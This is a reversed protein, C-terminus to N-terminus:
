LLGFLPNGLIIVLAFGIAIPAVFPIMPTVTIEEIGESKLRAYVAEVDGAPRRHVLEGGEVDVAPWVYSTEAEKFLMPYETLMRPGFRGELVNKAGIAAMPLLSILVAVILTSVPLSVVASAPYQPAWLLPLGPISPYAPFALSLSILAKADAGGALIGSYYMVLFLVSSIAPSLMAERGSCQPCILYSVMSLALSVALAWHGGARESLVYAAMLASSISCIAVPLAPISGLLALASCPIGVACIAAWHTDSVERTFVDSRAASLLVLSVSIACVVWLLSEWLM